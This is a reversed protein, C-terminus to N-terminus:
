RLMAEPSYKFHKKNLYRDNIVQNVADLNLQSLYEATGMPYEKTPNRFTDKEWDNTYFNPWGNNEHEMGLSPATVSYEFNFSMSYSGDSQALFCKVAEKGKTGRPAKIDLTDQRGSHDHKRVAMGSLIKDVEDPIHKSALKNVNHLRDRM